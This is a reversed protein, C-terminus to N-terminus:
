IKLARDQGASALFTADMGWKVENVIGKHKSLTSIHNLTKAIFLRIDSGSVALYTGTYDFKVSSIAYDEPLTSSQIMKLKRLDWLKVTNDEAATALYYGNESFDIDVVKGKHGEFTAVNKLTKIDWIKVASDANGTGVILGDPHFQISTFASESNVTALTNATEIDHFAWTKDASATIWFDGTAQLSCGVVEGHHVKVNHSSKYNGDVSSWLKATKDASTSFFLDQTPHFLVDTVKKSHESLTSVIKKTERNYVIVSGDVGGTLLFNQKTPHIDVTLIGPNTTQHLNVTSLVKYRELDETSALSEPPTRKKRDKALEQSRKQVRSKIEETIGTEVEMSETQNTTPLAPTQAPGGNAKFNALTNKADDREKILRAIVRCAADHQYLTHALEQRVSELQQKLSFTELMLADWENQFLSLMAPISTATTPRPPVVRAIKVEILDELVLTQKTIPCVNPNAELWKELLSKEYIHGYKSVVPVDPTKGSLSCQM